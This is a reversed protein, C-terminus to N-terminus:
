HSAAAKTVPPQEANMVAVKKRIINQWRPSLKGDMAAIADEGANVERAWAVINKFSLGNVYAWFMAGLVVVLLIGLIVQRIVGSLEAAAAKELNLDAQRRAELALDRETQLRESREYAQVYLKQALELRGEMVAVRRREAALLEVPDPPPLKAMVVPVERSIFDKAPSEPALSNAVGIQQVGAAAAGGQAVTAAELKATAVTSANANRTAKHWVKPFAWLGLTAGIALVVITTTGIEARLSKTM